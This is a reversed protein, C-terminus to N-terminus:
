EEAPACWTVRDIVHKMPYGMDLESNSWPTLASNIIMYFPMRPVFLSAPTGAVRKHHSVGDVFWEISDRRWEVGFTHFAGSWDVDTVTDNALPWRENGGNYLDKGCEKAWHYTFLVSDRLPNNDAGRPRFGEMIDIEGGMPWCVNVPVSTSPEPMLWHAPWADPWMGKRGSAPSALKARVEFRGGEQFALGKSEVWGSTFNYSAGTTSIAARRRTTITLAGDAVAVEDAMYLQRETSGHTANNLASWHLPNLATGLFDDHFTINWGPTDICMSEMM